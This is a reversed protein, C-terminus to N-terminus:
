QLFNCLPQIVGLYVMLCLSKVLDLVLISGGEVLRRELFSNVFFTNRESSEPKEPSDGQCIKDSAEM